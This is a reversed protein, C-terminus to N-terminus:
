ISYICLTFISYSLFIIFFYRDVVVVVGVLGGGLLLQGGLIDTRGGIYSALVPGPEGAVTQYGVNKLIYSKASLLLFFSM